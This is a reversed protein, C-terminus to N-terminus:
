GDHNVGIGYKKRWWDVDERSPQGDSKGVAFDVFSNNRELSVPERPEFRFAPQKQPEKEPKTRGEKQPKKSQQRAEPADVAGGGDKRAGARRRMIADVELRILNFMAMLPVALKPTMGFCIYDTVAGIVMARDAAPLDKMAECWKEFPYNM